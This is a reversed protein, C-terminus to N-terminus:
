TGRSNLDFMKTSFYDRHGILMVTTVVKVTGMCPVNSAPLTRQPNGLAEALQAKSLGAKRRLAVIRSGMESPALTKLLVLFAIGM